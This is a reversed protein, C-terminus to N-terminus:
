AIPANQKEIERLVKNFELRSLREWVVQGQYLPEAPLCVHWFQSRGRNPTGLRSRETVTLEEFGVSNKPLPSCEPLSRNTEYVFELQEGVVAAHRTKWIERHYSTDTWLHPYKSPTM